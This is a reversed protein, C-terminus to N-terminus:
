IFKTNFAVTLESLDFMMEMIIQPFQGCDYLNLRKGSKIRIQELFQCSATIKIPM